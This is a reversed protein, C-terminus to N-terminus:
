NAEEELQLEHLINQDVNYGKQLLDIKRKYVRRLFYKKQLDKGKNHLL